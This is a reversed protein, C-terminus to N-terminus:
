AAVLGAPMTSTSSVLPELSLEEAPIGFEILKAEYVRIADNYAKTAHALSYRLNRLISNKAEIAEEMNKCINDVTAQDLGSRQVLERLTLEKAELEKQFVNLRGELFINKNETKGQLQAIAIEFKKYMDNKEQEVKKYREDLKQKDAKIKEMRSKLDNLSGKANRYSMMYNSLLGVIKRLVDADRELNGMPGKTLEINEKLKAMITESESIQYKIDDLREHLQKIIDLNERTVDNFYEKMERFSMEDSLMLENIHQNKREEIEHIEVKMRLHLEAELEKLKREYTQILTKKNSELDNELYQIQGKLETEKQTVEAIHSKENRDYEDKIEAKQKNNAQEVENHKSDEKNMCEDGVQKIDDLAKSHEYEFHQVKQLHCIVEKSHNDEEDQMKTDLNKIESELEKIEDKTNQAFDSIMDNEIQLMNRRQKATGLAERLNTIHLDLEEGKMQMYPDDPEVM